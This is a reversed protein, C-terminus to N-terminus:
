LGICEGVGACASYMGDEPQEDAPPAGTSASGSDATTTAPPSTEGSEAPPATEASGGTAESDGESTTPPPATMTMPNATPDAFTTAMDQGEVTCSSVLAVAAAMAAVHSGRTRPAPPSSSSIGGHSAM